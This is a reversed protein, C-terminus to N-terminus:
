FGVAVTGSLEQGPREVLESPKKGPKRGPKKGKRGLYYRRKQMYTQGINTREWEQVQKDSVQELAVKVTEENLEGVCAGMALVQGTIGHKLDDDMLYKMKGFYSEIIESSACLVEGEKLGSAQKDIYELIDQLLGQTKDDRIDIMEMCSLYVEQYTKSHIGEIRLKNRVYGTVGLYRAVEMIVEEYDLIWAFRAIDQIALPHYDEFEDKPFFQAIMNELDLESNKDLRNLGEQMAQMYRKVLELMKVGWYIVLEEMNMYRAKSRQNPPALYAADGQQVQVKSASAAAIFAQWKEYKAVRHKLFCAIKHAVEYTHHVIRGEELSERFLRTGCCVESGGDGCTQFIICQRVAEIRKLSRKVVEGNISPVVVLDLIYMDEFELARGQSRIELYKHHPVGLVVLCKDKGISVSTDIFAIMDSIHSLSKTLQYYGIRKMWRINSSHSPAKAELGLSKFLFDMWKKNEKAAGRYSIANQIVSLLSM